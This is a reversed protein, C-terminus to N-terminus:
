SPRPVGVPVVASHRRLLSNVIATMQDCLEQAHQLKQASEQRMGTDTLGILELYGAAAALPNKLDHAVTRAYADLERILRVRETVDHLVILQGVSRQRDDRILSCRVDVVMTDHAVESTSGDAAEITGQVREWFPLLAAVPDGPQGNRHILNRAAPNLDLLRYEDDIVIVGDRHQQFLLSRVTPMVDLLRDHLTVWAVTVMAVLLAVPTLDIGRTLQTLVMANVILPTALGLSLVVIRRIYFTQSGSTHAFLAGLAGVILGYTLPLQLWYFGPGLVMVPVRAFGLDVWDSPLWILQHYPNTVILLLNVTLAATVPFRAIRWWATRRAYRCAFRFFCYTAGLIAPSAARRLLDQLPPDNILYSLADELIWVACGVLCASMWVAAPQRRQRWFYIALALAVATTALLGYPLIWTPDRTM